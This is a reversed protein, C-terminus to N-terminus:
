DSVATQPETDGTEADAPRLPRVGNAFAEMDAVNVVGDGTLDAIALYGLGMNMLQTVTISTRPVRALPASCCDDDGIMLFNSAIFGFDQADLAGSADMDSKPFTDGCPTNPDGFWGWETVFTGFDLIDVLNDDYQDAQYLMDAAGTFDAVYAGGAITPTVKSTLTHLEDEATVCDYDGCPLDNFAVGAISNGLTNAPFVVDKDLVTPSGSPCDRFTFRVCRVVNNLIPGQLELTAEVNNLGLVTVTFSCTATNGAADTATCIVTTTGSFTSGSPPVCAITAGPCNDTVTAVWTVVATCGGPEAYVTIDDPCDPVPPEADNVTVTFTCTDTNGSADTATCTVTTTGVPFTSGSPPSCVITAGPCNDAVTAVFSVVASCQGADNPVTINAPCTAVPAETDVVTVTFTCTDTNGSADTATCTVMTTGVPFTSGSPPVCAITAGPCNDSVTAAFAVVASCQGADNSVTIDAPCTAVPDEDDTVTVTSTCTDTNGSADTATCTVTTTGVPFFSGSAPACAIVAGLCNDSVTAAFTVVAGCEGADNGQTIDSPCSAVPDEDDTVTVTFTCTAANGCDDTATYTITTSGVPFTSGSPPGGTQVVPVPGICNDMATPATWTVVASCQGPDNSVTINSCGSFVPPTSDFSMPPLDYLAVYLPTADAKSLRTQFPPNSRFNVFGAVNCIEGTVTFRLVALKHDCTVFETGPPTPVGVAYDIQGLVGGPPCQPNTQEATSCEFVQVSMPPDGPTIAGPGAQLTLYVFDYNLFFQAGVIPDAVDHMWVEVILTEGVQYCDDAAELTLRPFAPQPCPNPDCDTNAGGFVGGALACDDPLLVQCEGTCFCCAGTPQPCPNPTCGSGMGLWNGTCDAQTTEACSGDPYCCAGIPQPCTNPTCTGFMTWVGTCNAALTEACTGDLYCCSGMPQPCTNPTCTGFMTWVGTCDAALTEACTGDLYCCAGMPQACPNPDCAQGAFWNGGATDCAVQTLQECHGDLFCCAGCIPTHVCTGGVCEDFTCPDGDDCDAHTNCEPLCIHVITGQIQFNDGMVDISVWAPCFPLTTTYTYTGPVLIPPDVPVRIILEDQGPLPPLPGQWTQVSYNFAVIPPAGPFQIDFVLTVLKERILAHENPWWMNWWNTAPYYIWEPPTGTGGQEVPTGGQLNLWYDRPACPNPFCDSGPGQWVGGSAACAAQSMIQCSSGICCAASPCPPCQPPRTCHLHPATGYSSHCVEECCTGNYGPAFGDSTCPPQAFSDDTSWPPTGVTQMQIPPLMGGTDLIRVNNPDNPDGPVRTFVYRPQVYFTASFVGGNPHQKTVTLLGPPAPTPSLGVHVDWLEPPSSPYTVTIPACSVLNLAVLEIPVTDMSPLPEPLCLPGMRQVVTDPQGGGGGGLLIVGDFPDSGPDFFGAPIPTNAFNSQTAGCSTVWCDMGPPICETLTMSYSGADGGYGDVVIYYRHGAPLPVCELYSRYGPCFDDNCAIPPSVCADQYVYVKTDYGSACLDITVFVDFFSDIWYVVDPSTSGAYPCVEDYDNTYGLTSGTVTAPLSPIEIANLCRDGPLPVPCSYSACDTGSHWTGGVTLCDAETLDDCTGEWFCCASLPPPGADAVNFTADFTIAPAFYAPIWISGPGAVGNWWMDIGWTGGVSCSNWTYGTTLHYTACAACSDLYVIGVTGIGASTGCYQVSVNNLAYPLVVEYWVANWDLDGPCDLTANINTGSVTQPYPGAVLQANACLDNPPPQPCPNPVCPVAAGQYVGGATTCDGPMLFECHGDGFCCAGPQATACNGTATCDGPPGPPYNCLLAGNVDYVYYGNEYSWSGATYDVFITDGTNAPFNYCAPGYGSALTLNDFILNGNVLVDVMGGNWGDGYSDVLCIQHWCFPTCPNPSCTTGGGRFFGGGTACAAQTLEECHGDTFCCAGIVPAACSACRWVLTTCTTNSFCNYQSVLVRVIGSFTATWMIKADAGACYDDSYCYRTTGGQDWLTLQSDYSASGGDEACLSWEYTSGSVVDYYAYEGGYICTSVVTWADSTTSFTGGPYNSVFNSCGYGTQCEGSREGGEPAGYDKPASVTVGQAGALSTAALVVGLICLERKCCM